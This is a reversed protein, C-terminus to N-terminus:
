MTCTYRKMYEKSVYRFGNSNMYDPVTVMNGNKMGLAFESFEQGKFKLIYGVTYIKLYFGPGVLCMSVLFFLYIMNNPTLESRLLIQYCSGQIHRRLPQILIHRSGAWYMGM